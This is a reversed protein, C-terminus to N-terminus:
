NMGLSGKIGDLWGKQEKIEVVHVKEQEKSLGKYSLKYGWELKGKDKRLQPYGRVITEELRNMDRALSGGVGADLQNKSVSSLLGDDAYSQCLAASKEDGKFSGCPYWMNKLPTRVYLNFVPLGDAGMMTSEEMQKRYDNMEQARKYQSRMNSPVNAKGKKMELKARAGNAGHHNSTPSSSHSVERGVFHSARQPLVSYGHVSSTLAAAALLLLSSRTM